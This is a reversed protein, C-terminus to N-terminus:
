AVLPEATVCTNIDELDIVRDAIALTEARHAVMVRTISLAALAAHIRREADPDLHSTAEDLFLLRPQSYLARALLIRQKQGGSLAAGMDGVLTYYQMPMQKIDDHIAAMEACRRIRDTDPKPDFFAINDALTGSMLSDDQMVSAMHRRFARASVKALDIDDILVQGSEPSLLGMMIKILTTKGTGSPARVAVCEGAAIRLCGNQIVWPDSPSYRFCVQRLELAGRPAVLEFQGGVHLPEPEALAIDSLRELHVSALRFEMLKEILASARLTFQAKYALFAVLMGISFHGELVLRAGLWVVVINEISLIAFNAIQGGVAYATQKLRANITDVARNQWTSERIQERSFSKIALIGRLSELFHGDERASTQLAETASERQPRYLLARLAVYLALAVLPVICLAPSYVLMVALTTVAMMGDIITEVITSAVLNQIASLSRFRSLVDAMARREFYALPLRILHHFLRSAWGFQLHSGLFIVVVSRIASIVVTLLALLAFGLATITLLDHDGTGIVEDFVLQGFFPALLSLAQIAFSLALIKALNAPLGNVKSFFSALTLGSRQVKQQFRESRALELAVGTFHKSVETVPLVRRGIAPDIIWVRDGAVKELVVFHDLDWHLICPAALRPLAGLEARLARTSFGLETAMRMLQALTVGHLSASLRVRLSSLDYESGYFGAVMALCALGCEATESQMVVPVRRRWFLSIPPTVTDSSGTM